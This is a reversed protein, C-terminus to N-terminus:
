TFSIVCAVSFSCSLFTNLTVASSVLVHTAPCRTALCMRTAVFVCADISSNGTRHSPLTLVGRYCLIRHGCHKKLAHYTGSIQLPCRLHLHLSAETALITQSRYYNITITFFHWYIWDDSGSGVSVGSV